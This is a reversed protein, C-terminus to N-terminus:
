SQGQQIISVIFAQQAISVFLGQQSIGVIFTQQIISVSFGQQTISVICAQETISVCLDAKIRQAATGACQKQVFLMCHYCSLPDFSVEIHAHRPLKLRIWQRKSHGSDQQLASTTSSTTLM